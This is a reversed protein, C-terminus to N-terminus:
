ISYPFNDSNTGTNIDAFHVIEYDQFTRQLGASIQVPESDFILKKPSLPTQHCVGNLSSYSEQPQEPDTTSPVSAQGRM